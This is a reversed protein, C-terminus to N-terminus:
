ARLFGPLACAPWGSRAADSTAIASSVACSLPGVAHPPPAQLGGLDPLGSLGHHPMGAVGCPRAHRPDSASRGWAAAWFTSAARQVGIRPRGPAAWPVKRPSYLSLGPLQPARGKRMEMCVPSKIRPIGLTVISRWIPAAICQDPDFYSRFVLSTAQDAPTSAPM